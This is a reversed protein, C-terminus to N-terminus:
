GIRSKVTGALGFIKLINKPLKYLVIPLAAVIYALSRFSIGSKDALFKRYEGMGYGGLARYKALNFIKHWPERPSVYSKAEDSIDDFSWLLQPWKFMWIEFSRSTWMANGFRILILPREVVYARAIPPSQFIVGVHVFLSGYYSARDRCLWVERRIIVCGIFSLGQATAKFFENVDGSSFRRDSPISILKQQLTEGLKEDRIEANAVVLDVEKNICEMVHEVAGPLLLDDDTMLWCFEGRAYGVAKDYDGDVGSNHKEQYFRIEPYKLVYQEMVERTNDSSAGNVVVLEVGVALQPIISDLTEGIFECRNFTSICISLLISNSM